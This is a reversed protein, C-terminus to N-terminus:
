RAATAPVGEPESQLYLAGLSAALFAVTATVLLLSKLLSEASASSPVQM